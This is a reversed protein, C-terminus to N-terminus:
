PLLNSEISKYLQNQYYKVENWENDILDFQIQFLENSRLTIKGDVGYKGISRTFSTCHIYENPERFNEWKYSYQEWLYMMTNWNVYEFDLVYNFHKDYVISVSHRRTVDVWEILKGGKYRELIRIEQGGERAIRNIEVMNSDGALLVAEDSRLRNQIIADHPVIPADANKVWSRVIDYVQEGTTANDLQPGYNFSTEITM